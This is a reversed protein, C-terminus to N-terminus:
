ARAGICVQKDDARAIVRLLFGKSCQEVARILVRLQQHGDLVHAAGDSLGALDLKM